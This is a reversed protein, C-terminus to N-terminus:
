GGSTFRGTNPDYPREFPHADNVQLEVTHVDDPFSSYRSTTHKYNRSQEARPRLSRISVWKDFLERIQMPYQWSAAAIVTGVGWGREKCVQAALVRGKRLGKGSPM